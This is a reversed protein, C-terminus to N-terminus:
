RAKDQILGMFEQLEKENLDSVAWYNMGSQTWHVLHFGQRTLTAPAAEAGQGSPWICLNIHHQRRQYVLAAVPRRDLYDLRGGLLPFEQASLDYVSPSFDLKGEFWPKVTHQDSSEVDFLHNGLMQSRVHSALLEETVLPDLSRPSLLRLLGWGAFAVLLLSAAVALWGGGPLRASPAARGARRAARQVRDQLDPPPDFYLAGGKITARVEELAKLAQACAPCEQLHGEIELNKMLDLEGDVYPHLLKQIEQCNM